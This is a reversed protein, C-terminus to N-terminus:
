DNENENVRLINIKTEIGDEASLSKRNDELAKLVINIPMKVLRREKKFYVLFFSIGGNNAVDALAKVQHLKANSLSWSTSNCEKADFAYFTGNYLIQFDFGHNNIRTGDGLTEPFNQQCFIGRSEYAKFLQKIAYELSRGRTGHTNNM